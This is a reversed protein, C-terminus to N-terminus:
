TSPIRWTASQTAALLLPAEQAQGWGDLVFRRLPLRGHEVTLTVNRAKEMAESVTCTGWASGNSWFWRGPRATLTLTGTPASWQFRTWALLAAWSAMARAYHHGCELEDFPNRRHGDHRNRIDRIVQLGQDELGEYLMHAATAYEFGSMVEGAYPFPREPRHGFPYTAMLLGADNGLVFSRMPNFHEHFGARHNHKM